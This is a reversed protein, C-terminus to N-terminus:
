IHILSLTTPIKITQALYGNIGSINLDDDADSTTFVHPVGGVELDLTETINLTLDAM